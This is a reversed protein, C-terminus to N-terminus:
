EAILCAKRERSLSFIVSETRNLKAIIRTKGKRFLGLSRSRLHISIESTKSSFSQRIVWSICYQYRLTFKRLDSIKNQSILM